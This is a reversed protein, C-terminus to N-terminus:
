PDLIGLAAHFGPGAEVDRLHCRTAPSGPVAIDNSTLVDLQTLPSTVGLGCAKMCAEKRAWCQYFLDTQRDPATAQLRTLEHPSFVTRALSLPDIDDRHAELDIGVEHGWALAVLMRNASHALNFRLDGPYDKGLSPKGCPGTLFVLTDPQSGPLAQALIRRLVGHAVIYRRRYLEEHFRHARAIEDPALVNSHSEIQAATGDLSAQWIQIVDRAFTQPMCADYDLIDVRINM